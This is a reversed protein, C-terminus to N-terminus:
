LSNIILFLLQFLIVQITYSRNTNVANLQEEKTPEYYNKKQNSVTAAATTTKRQVPAESESESSSSESSEESSTPFIIHKPGNSQTSKSSNKWKQRGTSNVNSAIRNFDIETEHNKLSQDHYYDARIEDEHIEHEKAKKVQSTTKKVTEYQEEVPENLLHAYSGVAFKKYCQQTNVKTQQKALSQATSKVAQQKPSHTQKAPKPKCTAVTPKQNAKTQSEYAETENSQRQNHNSTWFDFPNFDRQRTKSTENENENEFYHYYNNNNEHESTHQQHDAWQQDTKKLAVQQQCKNKNQYWDQKSSKEDYNL